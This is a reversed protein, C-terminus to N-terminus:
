DCRGNRFLRCIRQSPTKPFAFELQRALSPHLANEFSEKEIVRQQQPM